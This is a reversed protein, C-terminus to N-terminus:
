LSRWESDFPDFGEHKVVEALDDIFDREDGYQVVVCGRERQINVARIGEAGFAKTHIFHLQAQTVKLIADGTDFVVVPLEKVTAEREMRDAERLMEAARNRVAQAATRLEYPTGSM